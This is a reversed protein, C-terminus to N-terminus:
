DGRAEAMSRPFRTSNFDVAGGPVIWPMVKISYVGAKVAPDSEKLARAEEVGVNLISLGRLEPDQLPGAALLYGAEHLDALHAMHADQLADAQADDLEPGDTRKVLLAISFRDFEM